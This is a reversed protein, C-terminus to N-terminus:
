HEECWMILGSSNWSSSRVKQNPIQLPPGAEKDLSRTVTAPRIMSAGNEHSLRLSSDWYVTVWCEM